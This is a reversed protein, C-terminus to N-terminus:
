DHKKLLHPALSLDNSPHLRRRCLRWLWRGFVVSLLGLLVQVGGVALGAAEASMILPHGALAAAGVIVLGIGLLMLLAALAKACRWRWKAPGGPRLRRADFGSSQKM